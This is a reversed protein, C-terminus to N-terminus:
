DADEDNPVCSSGNRAERQGGPVESFLSQESRESNESQKSAVPVGARAYRYPDGRRGAGQRQVQGDAVLHRLTMGTLKRDGGVRERLDAEELWDDGLAALLKQAVEARELADLEGAAAIRGTIPDMTIVTDPLDTGYRQTSSLVRRTEGKRYLLAADVAGYLATSGLIAEGGTREGKGLHHVLLLHCGTARALETVPELAASVEAYANLEKIRVFRLLPEIIALVPRQTELVTRLEAVPDPGTAGDHVFIPVGRADLRAFARRVEDRKEELALYVVPGSRSARGLFPEGRAVALALNRALVSKGVKPRAALISTGGAILLGEVVYQLAAEPEDLLADLPTLSLGATKAAPAPPLPTLRFRPAAEVVRELAARGCGDGLWADVDQDPDLGPLDVLRVGSGFLALSRAVYEADRRVLYALLEPDPQRRPPQLVAVDAGKLRAGHGDVWLNWGGVPAVGPLGQAWLAAAGAETRCVYLRQRARVADAVDADFAFAFALEVRAVPQVSM